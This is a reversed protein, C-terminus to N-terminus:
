VLPAFWNYAVLRGTMVVIAWLAISFGGALKAARPTEPATDWDVLRREIGFHFALANLLALFLGFAKIRFFVNGYFRVPDSVFLLIGSMVMIVAGLSIWPILRAWVESVAVGRLTVGLLRLDWLLLLGVFLCLGLVHVSEIIPYWWISERIATSFPTNGLWQCFHLFFAM